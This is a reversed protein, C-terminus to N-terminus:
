DWQIELNRFHLPATGRGPSPRYIYPIFAKIVSMGPDRPIEEFEITFKVPVDNPLNAIMIGYNSFNMNKAKYVNGRPDVIEASALQLKRDLGTNSVIGEITIKGSVENGNVSTLKFEFDEEKATLKSNMLRLTEKLYIIEKELEEVKKDLDIIQSNLGTIENKQKEVIGEFELLKATKNEVEDILEVNRNQLEEITQGSVSEWLFIMM